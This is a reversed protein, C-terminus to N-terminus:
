SYTTCTNQVNRETQIPVEEWFRRMCKYITKSHILPLYIYTSENSNVIVSKTAFTNMMCFYACQHCTLQLSSATEGILLTPVLWRTPTIHLTFLWHSIALSQPCIFYHHKVLYITYVVFNKTTYHELNDTYKVRRPVENCLTQLVHKTTICLYWILFLIFMCVTVSVETQCACIAHEVMRYPGPTVRSLPISRTFIFTLFTHTIVSGFM